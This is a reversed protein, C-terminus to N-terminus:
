MGFALLFCSSLRLESIRARTMFKSWSKSEQAGSKEDTFHTHPFGLLLESHRNQTLGQALGERTMILSLACCGSMEIDNNNMVPMVSPGILCGAYAPGQAQAPSGPEPEQYLQTQPQLKERRYLSVQGM